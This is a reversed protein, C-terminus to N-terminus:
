DLKPEALIPELDHIVWIREVHRENEKSWEALMLIRKVCSHSFCLLFDWWGPCAFTLGRNEDCGIFSRQDFYTVHTLGVDVSHSFVSPSLPLLQLPMHFLCPYLSSLSKTVQHYHHLRGCTYM